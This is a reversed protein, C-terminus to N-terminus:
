TRRQKVKISNKIRRVQAQSAGFVSVFPMPSTLEDLQEQSLLPCPTHLLSRLKIALTVTKEPM